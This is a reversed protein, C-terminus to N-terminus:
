SRVLRFTKYGKGSEWGLWRQYGEEEKIVVFPEVEKVKGVFWEDFHFNMDSM